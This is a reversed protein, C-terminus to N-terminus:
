IVSVSSRTSGSFDASLLLLTFVLGAKLLLVNLEGLLIISSLPVGLIGCERAQLSPFLCRSNPLLSGPHAGSPSTCAELEEEM